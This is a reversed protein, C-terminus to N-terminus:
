PRYCQELELQATLRDGEREKETDKERVNHTDTNTNLSHSIVISRFSEDISRKRGILNPGSRYENLGIYRM